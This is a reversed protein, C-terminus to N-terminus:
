KPLRVDAAAMFHGGAAVVATADVIAHKVRPRPWSYRVRQRWFRRHATTSRYAAGGLGLLHDHVFASACFGGNGLHPVAVTAVWRLPVDQCLLLVDARSNYRAWM